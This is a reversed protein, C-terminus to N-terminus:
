NSITSAKIIEFTVESHLTIHILIYINQMMQIITNM